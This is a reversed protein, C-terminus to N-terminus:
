YEREPLLYNENLREFNNLAERYLYGGSRLLDITPEPPHLGIEVIGNISDKFQHMHYKLHYMKRDRYSRLHKQIIIVQSIYIQCYMYQIYLVYVIDNEM